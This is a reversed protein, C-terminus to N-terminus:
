GPDSPGKPHPNLRDVVGTEWFRWCEWAGRWNVGHGGGHVAWSKGLPSWEPPLSPTGTPTRSTIGFFEPIPPLLGCFYGVSGVVRRLGGSNGDPRRTRRTSNQNEPSRGHSHIACSKPPGSHGTASMSPKIASLVWLM